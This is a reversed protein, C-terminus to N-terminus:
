NNETKATDLATYDGPLIGNNVEAFQRVIVTEGLTECITKSQRWGIVYRGLSVSAKV